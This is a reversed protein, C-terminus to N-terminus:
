DTPMSSRTAKYRALKESDAVRNPDIRVAHELHAIAADLFKRRDSKYRDEPRTEMATLCIAELARDVGSKVDRPSPFEGREIKFLVEPGDHDTFPAQKTLMYYLTAGLSYIDTAPGLQDVEGRAQEPSMFGPTGVRSGATTPWVDSGSLPRLTADSALATDPHGVIKAL